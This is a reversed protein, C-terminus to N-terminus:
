VRQYYNHFVVKFSDFFLGLNVFMSFLLFLSGVFFGKRDTVVNGDVSSLEDMIESGFKAGFLSLALLSFLFGSLLLGSRINEDKHFLFLLISTLLNLIAFALVARVIGGEDLPIGGNTSAGYNSASILDFLNDHRVLSENEAYHQVYPSFIVVMNIHTLLFELIRLFYEKDFTITFSEIREEKYHCYYAEIGIILALLLGVVLFASGIFFDKVFEEQLTSDKFMGAYMILAVGDCFFILFSTWLRFYYNVYTFFQSISFLLSLFIFALVGRVLAVSVDGGFEPLAFQTTDALNKTHWLSYHTTHETIPDKIAIFPALLAIMHLHTCNFAMLLSVYRSFVGM